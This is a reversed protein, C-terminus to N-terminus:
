KAQNDEQLENSELLRHRPSKRPFSLTVITGADQKSDIGVDGGHDRVIRHVIMMGIGHGEKKTTFYPEFVHPLDEKRIGTGQDVVQAFVHDSDIGTIIRIESHEPVADIANGIINFFAQKLQESDGNVFPERVGAEMRININKANLEREKLRVTEEIVDLLKIKKFDPTTPRIAKLFHSIIGDLREVEKLCTSLSKKSKDTIESCDKLSRQLVQLHIHISNLPNGLEHAVGAALDMISSIRESELRAELNVKEETVDTIVITLGFKEEKTKVSSDEIPVAYIRVHRHEPYSIKMERVVVEDLSQKSNRDLGLARAIEPAARLLSVKGTQEEKLGIILRGQRNSYSLIGEEDLVLIGDRIVDFVTELLKRERALRQVLIGLNVQDLDDLRGLVKDLPSKSAKIAM